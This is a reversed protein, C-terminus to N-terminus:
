TCKSCTNPSLAKSDPVMARDAKRTPLTTANTCELRGNNSAVNRMLDKRTLSCQQM